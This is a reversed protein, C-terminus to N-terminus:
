GEKRTVAEIGDMLLNILEVIEKKTEESTRFLAEDTAYAHQEYEAKGVMYMSDGYSMIKEYLKQKHKQKFNDTM